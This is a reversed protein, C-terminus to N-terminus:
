WLALRPSSPRGILGWAFRGLVATFLDGGRADALRAILLATAVAAGAIFGGLHAWHATNDEIRFATYFVDFAIYFLVVWFGRVPFINMNLQFGGMLGWRWWAAMHVHPTPMLILYVGALGMIAGSAGLMAM